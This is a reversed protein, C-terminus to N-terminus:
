MERMIQFAQKYLTVYPHTENLMAQLQTMIVSNLNNNWQEHLYLQTVPDHIYLQAFVAPEGQPPLLSGSLHHLDGQIQFSYPGSAWTVEKDV